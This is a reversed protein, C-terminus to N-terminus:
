PARAVGLIGLCVLGIGLWQWSTPLEGLIPMAALTAVLPVLPNFLSANQAGLNKVAYVLLNITVISILIGQFAAQLLLHQLSVSPFGDYFFILYPVLWVSSIVSIVAVVQMPSANWRRCLLTFLGWCVGSLLFLADGLLISGQLLFSSSTVLVLGVLILALSLLARMSLRRQGLCVTGLFVVSPVLGPNLVVGHSTPALGLASYLVTIYPSGALCTLALGRKWGLGGLDKLGLRLFYPLCLIGSVGFRLAVMDFSSLGGLVSYRTTVFNLAWLLVLLVMAAVGGRRNGTVENKLSM